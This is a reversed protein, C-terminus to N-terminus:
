SHETEQERKRQRREKSENKYFNEKTFRISALNNLIRKQTSRVAILCARLYIKSITKGNNKNKKKNFTPIVIM